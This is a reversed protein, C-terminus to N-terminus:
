ISMIYNPISFIIESVLGGDVFNFNFCERNQMILQNRNFHYYACTVTVRFCNVAVYPAFRATVVAIITIASNQAAIPVAHKPM